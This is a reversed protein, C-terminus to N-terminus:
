ICFLCTRPFFLMLLRCYVVCASCLVDQSVLRVSLRRRLWIGMGLM